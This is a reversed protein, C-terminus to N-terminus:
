RSQWGAMAMARNTRTGPSLQHTIRNCSGPETWLRPTEKVGLRVGQASQVEELGSGPLHDEGCVGLVGCTLAGADDGAQQVQLGLREGATLREGGEVVGV